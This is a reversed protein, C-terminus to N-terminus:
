KFRRASKKIEEESFFIEKAHTVIDEAKWGTFPPTWGEMEMMRMERVGRPGSVGLVKGTQDGSLDSVMYLVAPAIGDPGLAAGPNEKYRPLDATMRTLAGPALTWIRINYKRGEIALVNSLGWIGGKAAGYNTQGFNGILGSTSSTNVIVGGGNDRMWKFVPQTCCFTGKLHVKMVKDWNAEKAKHFTEDLLIGANNVLIDARGFHKIADDFVSQGGALTSIDAGNAVARGGEAKIADVVKDAMSKDSGSGDRPGGLDNVVVAAGERAFLKAYAEGLGGGAGTILAVKGDLLGM